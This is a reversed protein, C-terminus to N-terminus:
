FRALLRRSSTATESTMSMHCGPKHGSYGHQGVTVEIVSRCSNQLMITCLVKRASASLNVQHLRVEIPTKPIHCQCRLRHEFSPPDLLPMFHVIPWKSSVLKKHYDSPFGPVITRTSYQINIRLLLLTVCAIVFLAIKYALMSKTKIKRTLKLAIRLAKTFGGPM